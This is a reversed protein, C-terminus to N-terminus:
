LSVSDVPNGHIDVVTIEIGSESVDTKLIMDKGLVLVPFHNKGIGKEIYNYQHHHGSIMLDIDAQNLISGWKETADKAGHGKSDTFLPIHEIVIRYAASKFENEQILARLWEAQEDRYRDFDVLGAYVPHSDEKDEGVDLVIFFVNGQRFGYYYKDTHHPFYQMLRRAGPGRAEHNGRVFIFPKEKSFRHVSVDLFGNFIRDENEGIWNLIDGTYFMLDITNLDINQLLIDLKASKEHIDAVVGFSFQKKSHDFTQFSYIDSVFTDGYIVEYPHFQRIEKSAIRYRYEMGPKLGSLRIVHRTTNAEILGHRSSKATKPYGGWTPFTRFNEDGCYEVWSLCKKNTFWVVTMADDTPDILYPGHTVRLVDQTYGAGIAICLIGFLFIRGAIDRDFNM